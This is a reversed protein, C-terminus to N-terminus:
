EEAAASTTAPMPRRRVPAAPAPAAAPEPAPEEATFPELDMAPIEDDFWAAAPSSLDLDQLFAVYVVAGVLGWFAGLSSLLLHSGLAGETWHYGLWGLLAGLALGLPINRNVFLTGLAQLDFRIRAATTM